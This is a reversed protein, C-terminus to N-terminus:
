VQKTQNLRIMLCSPILLSAVLRELVSLFRAIAFIDSDAIGGTLLALLTQGLVSLFRAIAFIDSDAIGGTLLALLTQGLVSLFRAIAFIDSDAIGGTLLALLTRRCNGMLPDSLGGGGRDLGATPSVTPKASM